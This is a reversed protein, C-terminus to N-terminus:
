KFFREIVQEEREEPTLEQLSDLILFEIVELKLSEPANKLYELLTKDAM